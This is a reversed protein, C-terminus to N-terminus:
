VEEDDVDSLTDIVGEPEAETTDAKPPHTALQKKGTERVSLALSNKTCAAESAVSGAADSGAFDSVSDAGHESVAKLLNDINDRTQDWTPDASPGALPSHTGALAGVILKASQNIVDLSPEGM